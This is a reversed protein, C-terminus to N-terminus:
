PICGIIVGAVDQGYFYCPKPYTSFDIGQAIALVKSLPEARFFSLPLNYGEVSASYNDSTAAIGEESIKITPSKVAAFPILKNVDMRFQTGVTYTNESPVILNNLDPWDTAILSTKLWSGNEYYFTATNTGYAIHKPNKGIRVIEDVTPSPINIKGTFSTKGKVLVVNNTAFSYGENLFIGCAWARQADTGM